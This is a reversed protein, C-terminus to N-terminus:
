LRDFPNPVAFEDLWAQALNKINVATEYKKAAYEQGHMWEAYDLWWQYYEMALDRLHLYEPGGQYKPDVMDVLLHHTIGLVDGGRKLLKRLYYTVEILESIEADQEAVGGLEEAHSALTVRMDDVTMDGDYLIARFAESWYGADLAKHALQSLQEQLGDIRTGSVAHMYKLLDVLQVESETM